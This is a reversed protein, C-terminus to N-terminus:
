SGIVKRLFDAVAEPQDVHLHHHSGPLTTVQAGMAAARGTAPEGEPVYGHEARLVSVKATPTVTEPSM